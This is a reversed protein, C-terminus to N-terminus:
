LVIQPQPPPALAQLTMQVADLWLWVGLPLDDGQIEAFTLRGYRVIWV